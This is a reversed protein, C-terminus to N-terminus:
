LNCYFLEPKPVNALVPKISHKYMFVTVVCMIRCIPFRDSEPFLIMPRM